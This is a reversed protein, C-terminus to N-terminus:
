DPCVDPLKKKMGWYIGQMEYYKINLNVILYKRWFRRRWKICMHDLYRNPRVRQHGYVTHITPGYSYVSKTQVMCTHDLYPNSRSCIYMEFKWHCSGNCQAFSLIFFFKNRTHDLANSQVQRVLSSVITQQQFLLSALLWHCSKYYFIALM